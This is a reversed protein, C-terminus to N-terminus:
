KTTTSVLFLEDPNCVLLTIKRNADDDNPYNEEHWQLLRKKLKKIKNREINNDFPINRADLEKIIYPCQVTLRFSKIPFSPQRSQSPSCKSQPETTNVMDKDHTTSSLSSSSSPPIIKDDLIFESNILASKLTSRNKWVGEKIIWDRYSQPADDWMEGSYKGFDFKYSVAHQDSSALVNDPVTQITENTTDISGVSSMNPVDIGATPPAESVLGKLFLVHWLQSRQRWVQNQVLYQVYSGPADELRLGSHKGFDFIYSCASSSSGALSEPLIQDINSQKSLLSQAVWEDITNKFVYYEVQVSDVQGVRHCRDEAQAM